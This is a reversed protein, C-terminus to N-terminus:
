LMFITLQSSHVEPPLLQSHPVKRPPLPILLNKNLPLPLGAIRGTSFIRTSLPTTFNKIYLQEMFYFTPNLLPWHHKLLPPFTKSDQHCSLNTHHLMQLPWHLFLYHRSSTWLILHPRPQSACNTKSAAHCFYWYQTQGTKKCLLSFQSNVTTTNTIM